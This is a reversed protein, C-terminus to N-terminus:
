KNNKELERIVKKTIKRTLKDILKKNKSKKKDTKEKKSISLIAAHSVEVSTSRDRARRFAARATPQYNDSM